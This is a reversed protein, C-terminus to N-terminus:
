QRGGARAKAGVQLFRLSARDWRLGRCVTGVNAGWGDAVLSLLEGQTSTRIISLRRDVAERRNLYFLPCTDLDLPADQFPSK